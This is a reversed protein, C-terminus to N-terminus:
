SIIMTGTIEHKAREFQEKVNVIKELKDQGEKITLVIGDCYKAVIQADPKNLSNSTHFLIIDFHQKWVEIQNPFTKLTLLTAPEFHIEGTPLCFLYDTIQIPDRQKHQEGLLLTSLGFSHDMNYLTHLSPERFNADVILVRKHQESFTLALYATANVIDQTQDLSTVM